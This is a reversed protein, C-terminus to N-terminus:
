TRDEQEAPVLDLARKVRDYEACAERFANAARDRKETSRAVDDEFARLLTAASDRGQWLYSMATNPKHPNRLEDATPKTM